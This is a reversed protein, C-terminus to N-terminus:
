AVHVTDQDKEEPSENGKRIQLDESKEVVEKLTKKGINKGIKWAAFTHGQKFIEEVEELTRGVTEPYM